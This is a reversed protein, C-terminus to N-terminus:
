ARKVITEKVQKVSLACAIYLGIITWSFLLHCYITVRWIKENKAKLGFACALSIISLTLIVSEIILAFALIEGPGLYSPLETGYNDFIFTIIATNLFFGLIMAIAGLSGVLFLWLTILGLNKNRKEKAIAISKKFEKFDRTSLVCCALPIAWFLCIYVMAGADAHETSLSGLLLYTLMFLIVYSLTIIGAKKSIDQLFWTFVFIFGLILLVGIILSVVPIIGLLGTEWLLMFDDITWSVGSFNSIQPIIYFIGGRNMMGDIYNHLIGGAVVLFFVNIYSMKHKELDILEINKIGDIEITFRTFYHYFYSLVFAFVPWFLISHTITGLGLPWGTDPGLYNNLFLVFVHTKSFKGDSIYYLCIGIVAGLVLHAISPM